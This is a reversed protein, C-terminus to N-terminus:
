YVFLLGPGEPRPGNRRYIGIESIGNKQKALPNVWNLKRCKGSSGGATRKQKGESRQLVFGLLITILFFVAFFRFGIDTAHVMASQAASDPGMATGSFLQSAVTASSSLQVIALVLTQSLDRSMNFVTWFMGSAAGAQERPATSLVAKALSPWSLGGAASVILPPIIVAWHSLRPGLQGLMLFAIGFAFAGLM